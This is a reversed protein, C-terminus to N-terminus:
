TSENPVKKWIPCPTKWNVLRTYLRVMIFTPKLMTLLVNSSNQFLQKGKDFQNSEFMKKAQALTQASLNGMCFLLLIGFIYKKSM